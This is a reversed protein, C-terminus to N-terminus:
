VVTAFTGKDPLCVYLIQAPELGVAKIRHGQGTTDWLTLMDGRVFQRTEGNSVTINIQGSFLAVFLLGEAKVFDTEHGPQAVAMKWWLVNQNKSSIRQPRGTQPLDVTQFFSHGQADVDINAFKM